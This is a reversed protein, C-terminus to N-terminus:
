PLARVRQQGGHPRHQVEHGLGRQSLPPHGRRLLGSQHAQEARRVPRTDGRRRERQGDRHCLPLGGGRVRARRGPPGSRGGRPGGRGYGAGRGDMVDVMRAAEHPIGLERRVAECRAAFSAPSVELNCYVVRTRACRAGLWDGGTVLAWMLAVALWTKGAKSPATMLMVQRQRLIGSIVEPDQAPLNDGTVDYLSTFPGPGAVNSPPREPPPAYGRERATSIIAMPSGHPEAADWLAMAEGQDCGLWTGVEIPSFPGNYPQARMNSIVEQREEDTLSDPRMAESLLADMVRENVDQM